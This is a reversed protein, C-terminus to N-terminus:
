AVGGEQELIRMIDSHKYLSKCGVKVPELYGINKWRWLTADCVGLMKMTEKRSHYKEEEEKKAYSEYCKQFISEAFEQLDATTVTLNVNAGSLIIDMIKTM